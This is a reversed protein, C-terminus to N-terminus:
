IKDWYLFNNTYKKLIQVGKIYKCLIVGVYSKKRNVSLM